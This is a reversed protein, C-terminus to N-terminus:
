TARVRAHGLCARGGLRGARRADAGGGGTGARRVALRGHGPLRSRGACRGAPRAAGGRDARGARPPRARLAAPLAGLPNRALRAPEGRLGMAESLEASVREVLTADDLSQARAVEKRAISCRLWTEGTAALHPWKASLWTCAGLLRGESRPVLFGRRGRAATALGRASLAADRRRDLQLPHGAADRRRDSEGHEPDPGGLRRAHRDRSRRRAAARLRPRLAPLPRGRRTRATDGGDRLAARCGRAARVAARRDARPRRSPGPLAPRAAAAAEVARLGRILSRHERALRELQPATARVSLEDSDAAYITGLLPDVLRELAQRGLRGGVLEGVSSDRGLQTAPLVLDLSARAVGLPSLIGSRLLPM